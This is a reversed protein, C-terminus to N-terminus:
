FIEKTIQCIWKENGKHCTPFKMKHDCRLCAKCVGKPLPSFNDGPIFTPFKKCNYLKEHTEACVICKSKPQDQNTVNINNTHVPLSYRPPKSYSMKNIRNCSIREDIYILSTRLNELFPIIYNLKGRQDKKKNTIKTLNRLM